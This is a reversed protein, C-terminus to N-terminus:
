RPHESDALVAEAPPPLALVRLLEERVIRAQHEATLARQDFRDASREQKLERARVAVPM